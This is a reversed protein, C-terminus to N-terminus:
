AVVGAGDSSAEAGRSTRRALLTEALAAALALSALTLVLRRGGIAVGGGPVGEAMELTGDDGLWAVPRSGVAPATWARIQIRSSAGTGSGRTDANVVLLGPLERRDTLRQYVGAQRIPMAVPAGTPDVLPEAEAVAGAVGAFAGRAASVGQRLLEQMLPVMVPRTPLDTWAPTPAASLYVVLGRSAGDRGRGPPASLVLTSGDGLRLSREGLTTEEDVALLREVTVGALLSDLEGTLVTLLPEGPDRADPDIGGDAPARPERDITWALGLERVMADPWLQVGDRHDPTVILLGGRRTYEAIARWRDDPLSGPELLFAADLSALAAADLGAPSLDVLEIESGNDAPALALRVWDAPTFRDVGSRGLGSRTAVVGVTLSSRREIPRSAENDDPLADTDLAATLVPTGSSDGVPLRFPILVSATTAGPEFRAVGRGVEGGPDARLRVAADRAADVGEGRRILRVTAQGSAGREGIAVARLPEVSAIAINEPAGEAPASLVLRNVRAPLTPLQADPDISGERLESLVAVTAPTGDPENGVADAVISLGGVLDARSDTQTAREVARLVAALDNSPPMVAASAPGALLVLSATDGRAPDLESLLREAQEKLRELAPEGNEVVGATLSNDLLIHLERPGEGDAAAGFLPRGLVMALLVVLTCRSALLLLQELTMRRRQRRYAELLFRMAGWRVPPRRRRLFHLLIPLAVFALGLAALIPNVLSM